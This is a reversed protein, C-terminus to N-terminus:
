RSMGFSRNVVFKRLTLVPEYTMMGSLHEASHVWRIFENDDEDESKNSVQLIPPRKLSSVPANRTQKALRAKFLSNTTIHPELVLRELLSIKRRLSRLALLGGQGPIAMLRQLVSRPKFVHQRQGQLSAM